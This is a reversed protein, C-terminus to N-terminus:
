VLNVVIRSTDFDARERGAITLNTTGTPSASFGLRLETVDTVGPVTPELVCARLALAIVDDDQNRDDGKKVAAEKIRTIGDAPFRDADVKVYYTLYVNKIAARSFKVPRIVGDKDVANATATGYTESGSPKSDWIAQAIETNSAGPIIGDFLIVEIAKAPVGNADTYMTVNEYCTCQLVGVVKRVDSAIADVTSSGGAALEEEQRIRYDGDEELYAGVVGDNPNTISNWGTVSNTIATLTGANVSIPGEVISEFVIGTYAGATTSVVAYKNTFKLDPQNAVNAMLQGVTFSKSADLNLTCTVLTKRAAERPTGTLAGINDLQRGEASSRDLGNYAVEAVEWLEAAKKSYSANLQGVPQNSALVLEPSITSLQDEELELKIEELTKKTFGNADVGAPM